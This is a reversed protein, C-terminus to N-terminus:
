LANRRWTDAITKKGLRQGFLSVNRYRGSNIMSTLTNLVNENAYIKFLNDSMNNFRKLDRHKDRFNDCRWNISRCPLFYINWSRSTASPFLQKRKRSHKKYSRNTRGGQRGWYLSSFNYELWLGVQQPM